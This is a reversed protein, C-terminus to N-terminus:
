VLRNFFEMVYAYASSAFGDGLTVKCMIDIHRMTIIDELKCLKRLPILLTLVMGFGSFVAGAVFYPPFITRTGARCNRCPRLGIVRDLAGLAGAADLSGRSDLVSKRLQELPPKSGTWGLSFCPRLSIAPCATVARDRMVALDPILGMYWFLVSVTFYTSFRSVRGWM